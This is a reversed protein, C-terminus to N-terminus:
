DLIEVRFAHYSTTDINEFGHPGGPDMWRV